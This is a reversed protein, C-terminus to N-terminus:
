LALYRRALSYEPELVLRAKVYEQLLARADAPTTADLGLTATYFALEARRPGTTAAARLAHTDLRGTAAEALLEYWVDGHRTALYDNALRDRPEGRRHADGVLWLSMYTKHLESSSAGLAAHFADVAETHRGIELLFGVATTVILPTDPDLQVARGVDDVAADLEGLFYRARGRELAREAAISRPLEKDGGLSAFSQIALQYADRAQAPKNQGRAIDGALRELKARRYRDGSTTDGLLELGMAAWRAAPKWRDRGLELTALAEYSDISPARELSRELAAEGEDVMGLQVLGRGLAGEAIAAAQSWVGSPHAHAVKALYTQTHHWVDRAAAPRGGAAARAIREAYLKGLRIADTGDLDTTSLLAAEYLGIPQDIRGLTRADSAAAVLLGPDGPFRALGSACIALAATHDPDKGDGSYRVNPQADSARLVAALDAYAGPTPQEAVINSRISLERDSGIGPVTILHQHIEAARGARALATSIRRATRLLDPHARVMELTAGTKAIQQTITRQRVELLGVYRDVLWPLPLVLAVPGLLQIPQARTAQAGADSMALEDAFALVEDLEALYTARHGADAEALLVLALVTAPLQGSRAFRDHLHHLLDVQGALERGVAAPEDQFLGALEDLLEGAVFPDDDELAEGLRVTQAIVVRARAATRAPTGPAMAWMADAVEDRDSEDRLALATDPWTPRAVTPPHCAALALVIAVMRLRVM